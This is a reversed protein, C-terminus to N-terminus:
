VHEIVVHVDARGHTGRAYVMLMEGVSQLVLLTAERCRGEVRKVCHAIRRTRDRGRAIEPVGRRSLSAIADHGARVTRAHVARCLSVLAHRATPKIRTGGSCSPM